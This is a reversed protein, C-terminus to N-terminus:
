DGPSFHVAAVAVLQCHRCLRSRRLRCDDCRREIPSDQPDWGESTEPEAARPSGMSSMAARM